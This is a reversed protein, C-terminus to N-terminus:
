KSKEAVCLELICDNLVVTVNKVMERANLIEELQEKIDQELSQM